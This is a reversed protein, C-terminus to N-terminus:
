EEISQENSEIEKKWRVMEEFFKKNDVYNPKEKKITEKDKVKKTKQTNIKEM